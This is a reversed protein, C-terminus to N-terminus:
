KLHEAKWRMAMLIRNRGSPHDYFLFEEIPGPEMKRYEGLKLAAEAWGDPAGSANIGFLDAEAENSRIITNLVPTMIFFYASFVAALLPLGAIDGIDRVGWGDGWRALASAFGWRLFAFGGAFVAAFSILIEYIHNLVYHGLEHGMVSEIEALSSRNLLNDNLSIRMTGMFGSVNASVRTTQRSADFQYVEDAPVGNARALSLVAERVPGKELATYTNFIPLIFVPVILMVFVLFGISVGTGWLWWTKRAKRIVGYLPVLLVSLLLINVGLAMVFDLFWFGFTQNALGYEHERFFNTYVTFPFFLASTLVIYPATYIITQFPKLRTWREALDRLRASLGTGLLLWAVGLTILFGWLQLWYGGEFYADSREKEEATMRDLYARTAAEPDFAAPPPEVARTEEVATVTTAEAEVTEEDQALSNTAWAIALAGCLILPAM